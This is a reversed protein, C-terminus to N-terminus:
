VYEVHQVHLVSDASRHLRFLKILRFVRLLSLNETQASEICEVWEWPIVSLLDVWFMPIPIISGHEVRIVYMQALTKLDAIMKWEERGFNTIVWRATLFTVFLDTVFMCDCLLDVGAWVSPATPPWVGWKEFACGGM